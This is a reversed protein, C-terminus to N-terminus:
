LQVRKAIEHGHHAPDARAVQAARAADAKGQAILRDIDAPTFNDLSVKIPHAPRVVLIPIFRKGALLPHDLGERVYRNVELFWELDNQVIENIVIDTVRSILHLPDGLKFDQGVPGVHEPQCVVAVIRAAGLDIAQKLPAVDRLGGDYFPDAGVMRLPMGVPEATSALIYDVLRLETSDVYALDGTRINVAGVRLKLGTSRPDAAGLERRVVRALPETDVLGNWRRWLANWAITLFGRRRVFTRPSRVNRRWFDELARGIAPWDPPSDPAAHGALYGVNLAGVSIGTVIGPGYGAQLLASVAGAQYAGKINGGSLVLADM